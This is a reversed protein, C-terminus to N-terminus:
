QHSDHPTTELRGPVDFTKFHGDRLLYGHVNGDTDTWRGVIDGQANIGVANTLTAGPFNITKYKGQDLLFGHGTGSSDLYLGVIAGRANIGRPGTSIAEPVDFPVFKLDSGFLPLCFLLGLTITHSVSKM